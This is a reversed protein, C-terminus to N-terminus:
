TAEWAEKVPDWRMVTKPDWVKLQGDINPVYFSNFGLAKLYKMFARGKRWLRRAQRPTMRARIGSSLIMRAITSYRLGDEPGLKIVNGEIM